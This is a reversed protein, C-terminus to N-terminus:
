SRKLKRTKEEIYNSVEINDIRLNSIAINVNLWATVFSADEFLTDYAQLDDSISVLSNYLTIIDISGITSSYSLICGKSILIKKYELIANEIDKSILGTTNNKCLYLKSLTNSMDGLLNDIDIM